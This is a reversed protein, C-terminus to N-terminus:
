GREENHKYQQNLKDVRGIEEAERASYKDKEQQTRRNGWTTTTRCVPGPQRQKRERLLVSPMPAKPIMFMCAILLLVVTTIRIKNMDSQLHTLNALLEM